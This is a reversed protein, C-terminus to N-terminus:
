VASAMEAERAKEARCVDSLLRQTLLRIVYFGLKPNQYHLQFLREDTMQYLEGDSECVLTQTRKRDPSFLGIEGLLEGAVVPRGIESLRATGEAIYILRDATDGRRFLVDGQKFSKREMQPLLWQGVPSDSSAKEIERTLKRLEWFRQANVPLLIANLLLGPWASAAIAYGIFCINAGIALLRLPVMRKMLFSAVSLAVGVFGLLLSADIQLNM